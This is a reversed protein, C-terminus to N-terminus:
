QQKHNPLFQLIVLCAVFFVISFPFVFWVDSLEIVGAALTPAISGILGETFFYVSFSLGRETIPTMDAVLSNIPSWVANNFFSYLIYILALFYLQSALSLIFLSIACGIIAYNLAKKAGIREGLYGGGLSGAIGMFSGLGFILSATSESLNRTKVFYTTMFTSSGTGGVERVAIAILFFLLGSSLIFSLRRPGLKSKTETKEFRKTKLPSSMLIICGWILIPVAWFLYTWRWGLTLMFVALSVVGIASGLSGFANHFGMSRNIQKPKALRSIQSLGSIHYLPSSIKVFSVAIVLTWFNSTQSVIIASVGEVLMSAFLLHQTNFRDALFGSPINMLLQVLSPITVVLSAELPSLQFEQIIVPILAVQILLYVELFMHTTCIMWLPKEM